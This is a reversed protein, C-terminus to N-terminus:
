NKRRILVGPALRTYGTHSRLRERILSDLLQKASALSRRRYVRERPAGAWVVRYGLSRVVKVSGWSVVVRLGRRRIWYGRSGLQGLNHRNVGHGGICTFYPM